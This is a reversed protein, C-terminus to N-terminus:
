QVKSTIFTYDMVLAELFEIGSYQSGHLDLIERMKASSQEVILLFPDRSAKATKIVEKLVVVDADTLKTVQFFVPKYDEAFNTSTPRQAKNRPVLSVVTTGAVLDGLRQNRETVAIMILGIYSIYDVLLFMWRLLYQGITVPTAKLSMVKIQMARKGLTQGNMFVESLLTYLLVPLMSIILLIVYPDAYSSAATRRPFLVMTTVIVIMYAFCIGWDILRALIRYGVGAYEYELNIYQFTEVKLTDM